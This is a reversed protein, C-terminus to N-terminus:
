VPEGLLPRSCTWEPLPPDSMLNPTMKDATGSVSVTVRYTQGPAHATEAEIDFFPEIKTPNAFDISGRTVLYRNGEFFLEGREITAHGFLLPRDYTGALTLDASSVIRAINNEVRM